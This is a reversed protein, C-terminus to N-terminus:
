CVVFFYNATLKKIPARCVNKEWRVNGENVVTVRHANM